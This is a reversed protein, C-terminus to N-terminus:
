VRRSALIDYWLCVMNASCCKLLVSPPLLCIAPHLLGQEYSDTFFNFRPLTGQAVTDGMRVVTVSLYFSPYGHLVWVSVTQLRSIEGFRDHAENSITIAVLISKLRKIPKKDDEVVSTHFTLILLYANLRTETM